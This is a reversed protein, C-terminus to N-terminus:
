VGFHHEFSNLWENVIITSFNSWLNYYNFIKLRKTSNEFEAGDFHKATTSLIVWTAPLLPM